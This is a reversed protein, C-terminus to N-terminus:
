GDRRRPLPVVLRALESRGTRPRQGQGGGVHLHLTGGAPGTSRRRGAPVAVRRQGQHLPFRAPAHRLFGEYQQQPVRRGRYRRGGRSHDARASRAMGTAGQAFSGDTFEVYRVKNAVTNGAFPEPIPGGDIQNQGSPAFNWVVDEAAIFYRRTRGHEDDALALTGTMALAGLAASILQAQRM